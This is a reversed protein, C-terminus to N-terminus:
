LLVEGKWRLTSFFDWYYRVSSKYIHLSSESSKLRSSTHPINVNNLITRAHEQAQSYWVTNEELYITCWGLPNLISDVLSWNSQCSLFETQSLWDSWKTQCTGGVMGRYEWILTVRLLNYQWITSDYPMDNKKGGNKKWRLSALIRVM